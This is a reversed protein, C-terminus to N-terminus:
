KGMLAGPIVKAIFKNYHYYRQEKGSGLPSPEPTNDVTLCYHAFNLPHTSHYM